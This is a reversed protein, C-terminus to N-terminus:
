TRPARKIVANASLIAFAGADDQGDPIILPQGDREPIFSAVEDGNHSVVRLVRVPKPGYIQRAAACLYIEAGTIIVM